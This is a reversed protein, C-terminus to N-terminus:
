MGVESGDDWIFTGQDTEDFSFHRGCGICFTGSYFFPNRAYTEAIDQSMTTAVGCIKHVYTRRVPRVFGKKREEESLIVYAKQQGNEKLERHDGDFTNTFTRESM